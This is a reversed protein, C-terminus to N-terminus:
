SADIGNDPLRLQAEADVGTREITAGAQRVIRLMAANESLAHIVITDVGRKRARLVAQDFLRAGYGRGRAPVAVSVGFEAAGRQGAETDASPDYALHALAVLDLRRDFV